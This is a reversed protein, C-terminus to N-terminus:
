REGVGDDFRLTQPATKPRPTRERYDRQRCGEEEEREGCGPIAAAIVARNELARKCRDRRAAGDRM